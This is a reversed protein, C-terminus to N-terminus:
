FTNDVTVRVYHPPRRDKDPSSNRELIEDVVQFTALRYLLKKLTKGRDLAFLRNRNDFRGLQFHQFGDLIRMRM